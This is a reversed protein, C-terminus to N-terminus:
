RYRGGGYGGMGYRGDAIAPPQEGGGGSGSGGQDKKKKKKKEEKDRKKKGDGDGGLGAGGGGAVAVGRSVGETFRATLTREGVEQGHLAQVAAAALDASAFTVYATGRARGNHNSPIEILEIGGNQGDIGAYDKLIETVIPESLGRRHLNLIIIRRYDLIVGGQPTFSSPNEGSYAAAAVYPSASSSYGYGPYSAPTYVAAAAPAATHGGMSQYMFQNNPLPAHNPSATNAGATYDSPYAQYSSSSSTAAAAAAGYSGYGPQSYSASSNHQQFPETSPPNRPMEELLRAAHLDTYPLKVITPRDRNRDDAQLFRADLEKGNLHQFCKEFNDLGNVRVLGSTPNYVDAYDVECVESACKKLGKWTTTHSLNALVIYYLGTVSGPEVTVTRLDPNSKQNGRSM